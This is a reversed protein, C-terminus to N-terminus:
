VSEGSDQEDSGTVEVIIAERVKCDDGFVPGCEILVPFANELLAKQLHGLPAEGSGDPDIVVVIVVQVQHKETRIGRQQSIIAMRSETIFGRVKGKHVTHSQIDGDELAYR